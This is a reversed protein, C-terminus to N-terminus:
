AVGRIPFFKEGFSYFSEAQPKLELIISMVLGGGFLPLCDTASRKRMERTVIWGGAGEPRIMRNDAGPTLFGPSLGTMGEPYPQSQSV